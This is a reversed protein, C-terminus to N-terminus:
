EATQGEGRGEGRQAPLPLVVLSDGELAFGTAGLVWASVEAEPEGSLEVLKHLLPKWPTSRAGAAVLHRLAYEVVQGQQRQKVLQRDLDLFTSAVTRIALSMFSTRDMEERLAAQDVIGVVTDTVATVTASRPQGTFVAAEGFLEGPNLRRLEQPQGGVLRSALCSGEIIVYAADGPEGETIIAEGAKFSRQPLQALGRTYRELDRQFAEVTQYREAPDKALAKMCIAVLRRPVPARKRGAAVVDPPTVVGAVAKEMAQDATSSAHPAKGCLVRYLMGGLAFIDTREDFKWLEGAAQEPAMYNPTGQATRVEVPGKPLESKRRAIGWDVLYIQGFDAVIVNSPKLDLHLVGKSHAFALADCIRLLVELAEPLGGLGEREDQELQEQLTQGELVKMTFVSSRKRESGLAYVAPINPHDLQATIRAETVFSALAADEKLLEPRLVKLAVERGLVEDRVRYVRAMGGSGLLGLDVVQWGEPLPQTLSKGDDERKKGFGFM